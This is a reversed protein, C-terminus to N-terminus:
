SPAANPGDDRPRHPSRADEDDPEPEPPKELLARLDLAEAAAESRTCAEDMAGLAAGLIRRRTEEYRAREEAEEDTTTHRTAFPSLTPPKQLMPDPLEQEAATALLERSYRSLEDLPDVRALTAAGTAANAPSEQPAPPKPAIAADIAAMRAALRHRRRLLATLAHGRHTTPAETIGREAHSRHDVRADHGAAELARNCMTAYDERLATVTEKGAGANWHRGKKACFGDGEISRETILLHAHHNRFDGRAPDQKEGAKPENQQPRHICVDVAVGGLKQSVHKAFTTALAARGEDTLESPLAIEIEHATCADGRKEAAEARNWLQRRDHVWAPAGAPAVVARFCCGRKRRFDHTMGTRADELSIAARYAAAAVASRGAKRQIAKCCLHFIAM